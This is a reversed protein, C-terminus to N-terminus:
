RYDKQAQMYGRLYAFAIRVDNVFERELGLEVALKTVKDSNKKHDNRSDSWENLAYGIEVFSPLPNKKTSM